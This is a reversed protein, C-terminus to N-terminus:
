FVCFSGVSVDVHPLPFEFVDAETGTLAPQLRLRFDEPHM